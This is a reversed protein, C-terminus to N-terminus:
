PGSLRATGEPARGIPFFAVSDPARVLGELRWGNVRLCTQLDQPLGDFGAFDVGLLAADPDTRLVLWLGDDASRQGDTNVCWRWAKDIFTSAVVGDEVRLPTAAETLAREDDAWVATARGIGWADVGVIALDAVIALAPDEPVVLGQLAAVVEVEAPGPAAVVNGPLEVAIWQAKGVGGLRPIVPEGRGYPLRQVWVEGPRDGMAPVVWGPRAVMRVVGPDSLPWVLTAECDDRGVAERCADEGALGLLAGTGSGSIRQLWGARGLLTEFVPSGFAALPWAM